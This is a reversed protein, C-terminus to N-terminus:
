SGNVVEKQTQTGLVPSTPMRILIWGESEIVERTEQDIENEILQQPTSMTSLPSGTSRIKLYDWACLASLFGDFADSRPSSCALDLHTRCATVDLQYDDLLKEVLGYRLEEASRNTSSRKTSKEGTKYEIWEPYNLRLFATPYTEFLVIPDTTKSGFGVDCGTILDSLYARVKAWNFAASAIKDAGVAFLSAGPDKKRLEGRLIIDTKRYEFDDRAPISEAHSGSLASWTKTFEAHSVPWGMPVDVALATPIKREHLGALLGQLYETSPKMPCHASFPEITARHPLLLKLAGSSCTDDLTILALGWNDEQAAMDLGIAVQSCKAQDIDALVRTVFSDKWKQSEIKFGADRNKAM